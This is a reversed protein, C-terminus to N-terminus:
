ILWHSLDTKLLESLEVIDHRYLEIVQKREEPTIEPLKKNSSFLKMLRSKIKKSLLRSLFGFLKKQKKLFLIIPSRSKSENHRTSFDFRFDPDAGIFSCITKFFIQQDKKWEDYFLILLQNRPFSEYYRKVQKSYLGLEFYLNSIGWGRETKSMDNKLETIFDGNVLGNNYDMKYHSFARDFPNRLVMIIKAGPLTEYIKKAATESYLYTNSLEGLIKKPGAPEFIKEYQDITKVFGHFVEHKMGSSIFDDVDLYVSKAYEARFNEPRIDTCFFNVEKIPPFYIEPHQKLYQYLSTTGAKAAGVIIFDPLQKENKKM